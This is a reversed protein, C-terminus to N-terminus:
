PGVTLNTSGSGGNCTASITTTGQGILLFLGPSLGSYQAAAANTSNWNCSATVDQGNFSASFQISGQSASVTQNAPNLIVSGTGTGGVSISSSGSTGGSSATITVNGTTVGTVMGTSNVTAVQSNSSAWNVNPVNAPTGDNNVGTASLQVTQGVGVSASSPNVQLSTITEPIFFGPCSAFGVVVLMTPVLLLARTRKKM